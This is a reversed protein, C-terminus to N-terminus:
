LDAATSTCRDTKVYKVYVFNKKKKLPTGRVSHQRTSSVDGSFVITPRGGLQTSVSTQRSYMLMLGGENLHYEPARSVEELRKTSLAVCEYSPSSRAQFKM